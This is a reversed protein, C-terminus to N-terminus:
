EPPETPPLISNAPANSRGTLAENSLELVRDSAVCDRYVVDRTLEKELNQRITVHKVQIQGIAKATSLEIARTADAILKANEVHDLTAADYGARYLGRGGWALGLSALLGAAAFAYLKVQGM